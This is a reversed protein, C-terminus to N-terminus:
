YFTGPLLEPMELHIGNTQGPFASSFDYDTDTPPSGRKLLLESYATANGGVIVSVNTSSSDLAFSFNTTAGPENTGVFAQGFLSPAPLLAILLMAHSVLTRIKIM